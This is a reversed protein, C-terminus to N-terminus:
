IPGVALYYTGGTAIPLSTSIFGKVSALSGAVLAGAGDSDPAGAALDGRAATSNASASVEVRAGVIYYRTGAAIDGANYRYFYKNAGVVGPAASAANDTDDCSKLKSNDLPTDIGVTSAITSLFCFSAVSDPAVGREAIYAEIGTQIDQVKKVRVADRAKAPARLANPLFAVTLIAIIAIVILLEMLTFAKERGLLSRFKKFM